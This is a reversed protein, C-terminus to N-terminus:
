IINQDILFDRDRLVEDYGDVRIVRHAESLVAARHFVGDVYVFDHTSCIITKGAQNLKILFQRLFRKTRPDLNNMPEDFIYVEPNLAVAAAIAVRKKEGGSLHYPARQALHSIRLLNMSENVRRATETEDMGMQNPGFAIEEYVSSCFLQTDPNQFIFGTNKHFKKMFLHDKLRKENIETGNFFYHGEDAAILGSILKMLTSKGSGNPGIFAISEGRAIQLSINELAPTHDPYTYSINKLEIM